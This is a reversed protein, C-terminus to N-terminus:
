CELSQLRDHGLGNNLFNFQQRGSSGAEEVDGLLVGPIGRFLEDHLLIIRDYALM